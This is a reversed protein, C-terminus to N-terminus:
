QLATPKKEDDLKKVSAAKRRKFVEVDYGNTIAMADKQLLTM